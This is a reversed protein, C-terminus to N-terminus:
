HEGLGPRMVDAHSHLESLLAMVERSTVSLEDLEGLMDWCLVGCHRLQQAIGAEAVGHEAGASCRECLTRCVPSLAAAAAGRVEDDPDALGRLVTRLLPPALQPLVDPRM